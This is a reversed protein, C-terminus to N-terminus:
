AFMSNHFVKVKLLGPNVESFKLDRERLRSKVRIKIAPIGNVSNKGRGTIVYVHAYTKQISILKQIQKDLFLDLCQIAESSHLYHLDLMNESNQSVNHVEVLCNAARNNYFDIKNKHLESIQTYYFAVGHENRQIATRAKAVCEAKLQAHHMAINRAEEFEKLAARKTDEPSLKSFEDASSLKDIEQQAQAFLEKGRKELDQENVDNKLTNKLVNITEDLNNKHAALIEIAVERDINPFLALLKDKALNYAITDPLTNKWKSIDQKYENLAKEIEIIDQFTKPPEERFMGPYKERADLQRALELDERAIKLRHEELQNHVSECWLAYLQQGLGKTLFINTKLKLDGLLLSENEVKFVNTGYLEELKQVFTLGLDIEVVEEEDQNPDPDSSTEEDFEMVDLNASPVIGHKFNRIKRTHSSYHEDGIVFSEEILKKLKEQEEPEVKKTRKEKVETLIPPTQPKSPALFPKSITDCAECEFDEEANSPDQYSNVKPDNILIEIAWDPDGKCKVFLDWLYSIGVAPFMQRIERFMKNENRCEKKHKVLEKQLDEQQRILEPVSQKELLEKKQQETQFKTREERAMEQLSDLLSFNKATERKPKPVVDVPSSIKEFNKKRQHEPSGPSEMKSWFNDQEYSQWDITDSNVQISDCETPEQSSNPKQDFIERRPKPIEASPILEPFAERHNEIFKRTFPPYHRFETPTSIYIEHLNLTHLLKTVNTKEYNDMMQRIREKPVNHQNKSTLTKPTTAWPTAPEMIIIKYRYQVGLRIYPFMNWLKINTNDIIVPSWSERLKRIANNQTFEHAETLKTQDYVYEGNVNIFYDDASFIHNRPDFNFNQVIQKALFSKGSGPLGRMLIMVKYGKEIMDCANKYEDPLFKASMEIQSVDMLSPIQPERTERSAIVQSTLSYNPTKKKTGTQINSRSPKQPPIAQVRKEESGTEQNLLEFMIEIATELQVNGSQKTLEIAKDIKDKSKAGFLDVLTDYVHSSPQSAASAAEEM